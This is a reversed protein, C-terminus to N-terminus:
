PLRGRSPSVMMPKMASTASGTIIVAVRTPTRSRALTRGTREGKIPLRRMMNRLPEKRSSNKPKRSCDKPVPQPLAVKM